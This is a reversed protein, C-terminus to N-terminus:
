PPVTGMKTVHFQCIQWLSSFSVLAAVHKSNRSGCDVIVLDARGYRGARPAGDSQPCVM